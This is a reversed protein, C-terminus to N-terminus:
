RGCRKQKRISVGMKKLQGSQAAGCLQLLLNECESGEIDKCIAQRMWSRHAGWRSDGVNATDIFTRLMGEEERRVTLEGAEEMMKLSSREPFREILVEVLGTVKRRNSRWAEARQDLQRLSWCPPDHM